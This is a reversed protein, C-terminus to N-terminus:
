SRRLLIKLWTRRKLPRDNKVGWKLADFDGVIGVYKRARTIATYLLNRQLMIWHQKVAPFIVASYESGQSKHISIAYSLTLDEIDEEWYIIERGYFNVVLSERDADVIRGIEGNFVEKFYNNYTQMVKDGIRFRKGGIKVERGEPNLKEQLARNLKEVGVEGKYMPAIVQIEETLPEIGLREPVEETALKIIKDFPNKDPFFEFEGGKDTYPILGSRIRQANQAILSGEKQRYIKKLFITSFLGSSIIDALINGPGVSPLQDKDGVLILRAGFPLARLVARFLWADIMSAEDLILLDVELPRAQNREFEMTFPDFELLRHITSAEFGTAETLRKAARGTPAAFKVRLGKARAVLGIFKIITTKGTGPGGSIIMFRSSLANEIAKKQQEDLQIPFSNAVERFSDSLDELPLLSQTELKERLKEAIELEWRFYKQLGIKGEQVQFTRSSIAEEFKERDIGLDSIREWLREIEMYTDGNSAERELFYVAAAEARQRSNLPVGLKRAIQDAKKFGIGKFELSLRYPNEEIIRRAEEGYEELVRSAIKPPISLESLFILIERRKGLAKFYDHIKKAKERSIGKVRELEEPKNLIINLTEDGFKEVIRRATVKGIGRIGASAIVREMGTTRIEHHLVEEVAFERGYKGERWSGELIVFEGENLFDIEGSAKVSGTDTKILLVAFGRAEYIKKEVEGEIKM